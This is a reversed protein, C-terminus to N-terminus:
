DLLCDADIKRVRGHDSNSMADVGDDVVVPLDEKGSWRSTIMPPSLYVIGSVVDEYTKREVQM